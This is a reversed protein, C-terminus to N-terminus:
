KIFLCTRLRRTAKKNQFSRVRQEKTIKKKKLELFTKESPNEDRKLYM